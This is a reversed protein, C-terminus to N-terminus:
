FGRAYSMVWYNNTAAVYMLVVVDTLSAGTSLTISPIDSGFHIPSGWTVTRGGTADQKLRLTITQGDFANALTLTTNATMTIDFVDGTSCDVTMSTAYAPAQSRRLNAWTGDGRLFTLGGPTGTGLTSPALTDASQLQQM